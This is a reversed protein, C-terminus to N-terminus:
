LVYSGPRVGAAADTNSFGKGQVNEGAARQGPIKQKQTQFGKGVPHEVNGPPDFRRHRATTIRGPDVDSGQRVPETTRRRRDYRLKQLDLSM